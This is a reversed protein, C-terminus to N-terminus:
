NPCSRRFTGCPIATLLGDSSSHPRRYFSPVTDGLFMFYGRAVGKLGNGEEGGTEVQNGSQNGSQNGGKNGWNGRQTPTTVIPADATSIVAAFSEEDMGEGEGRQGTEGTEGTEGEVEMAAPERFLRKKLVARCVM